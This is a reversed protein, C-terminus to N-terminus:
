RLLALLYAAALGLYALFSAGLLWAGAPSPRAWEPVSPPLLRYNLAYLAAPFVVTGLFGIVASTLILPGPADALMTLCTVLTLGCVFAVYLRRMPFRRTAPFLIHMIDAQ